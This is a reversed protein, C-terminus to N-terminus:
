DPQDAVITLTERDTGLDSGHTNIYLGVNLAKGTRIRPPDERLVGGDNVLALDAFNEGSYESYVEVRQTGQNEIKLLDHFEYVSDPGVGKADTEGNLKGPIFFQAESGFSGSRGTVKGGIGTDPIPTLKLFASSDRATQINVARDASTSTFAGTSVATAGGAAVSGFLAIARRRSFGSM